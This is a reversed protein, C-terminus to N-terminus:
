ITHFILKICPLIYVGELVKFNYKKFCYVRKFAVFTVFFITIVTM